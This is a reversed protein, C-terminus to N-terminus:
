SKAPLLLKKPEPIGFLESISNLTSSVVDELKFDNYKFPNKFHTEVLYAFGCIVGFGMTCAFYFELGSGVRGVLYVPLYAVHLLLFTYMWWSFIRPYRCSLITSANGAESKVSLLEAKVSPLLSFKIPDSFKLSDSLETVKTILESLLGFFTESPSVKLSLFDSAASTIPDVVALVECVHFIYLVKLKAAIYEISKKESKVTAAPITDLYGKLIIAVNLIGGSVGGTAIRLDWWRSMVFGSYCGFLVGLILSSVSYLEDFSALALPKSLHSLQGLYVMLCAFGISGIRTAYVWGDRQSKHMWARVLQSSVM